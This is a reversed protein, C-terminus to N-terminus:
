FCGMFSRHEKGHKMFMLHMKCKMFISQRNMSLSERNFAIGTLSTAKGAKKIDDITHVYNKIAITKKHYTFTRKGGKALAEPHYDTIIMAGGPKLVRSWELLAQEANQIHAITLTSVICDISDNQLEPLKNGSLLHTEAQPFKENLKRLMGESVDYGM